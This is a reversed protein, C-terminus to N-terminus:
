VATAVRRPEWGSVRQFWAEDVHGGAVAALLALWREDLGAQEVREAFVRRPSTGTLKRKRLTWPEAEDRTLGGRDIWSQLTAWAVLPNGRSGDFLAEAVERPREVPGPLGASILRELEPLGPPEPVVRRLLLQPDRQPNWNSEDPADALGLPAQGCLGAVIATHHSRDEILLRRLVAVSGRDAFQLNDLLIVLPREQSGVCRIADAIAVAHRAFGEEFEFNLPDAGTAGLTPEIAAHDLLEVLWQAISAMVGAHEGTRRAPRERVRETVEPPCTSLGKPLAGLAGMLGARSEGCGRLYEGHLVLARDEARLWSAFEDLLRSKGLGQAGCILGVSSRAIKADSYAKELTRRVRERGVFPPHQSLPTASPGHDEALARARSWLEAASRPTPELLNGVHPGAVRRLLTIVGELDQEATGAGTLHHFGDLRFQGESQRLDGIRLDIGRVNAEHLRALLGALALTLVRSERAPLAAGLHEGEVPEHVLVMGRALDITARVRPQVHEDAVVARRIRERHREDVPLYTITVRHHPARGYERALDTVSVTWLPSAHRVKGVVCFRDWV